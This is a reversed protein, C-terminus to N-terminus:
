DMGRIASEEGDQSRDTSKSQAMVKTGEMGLENARMGRFASLVQECSSRQRTQRARPNKLVSNQGSKSPRAPVVACRTSPKSPTHSASSSRSAAGV